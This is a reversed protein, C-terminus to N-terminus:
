AGQYEDYGALAINDRQFFDNDRSRPTIQRIFEGSM